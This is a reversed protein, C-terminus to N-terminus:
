TSDSSALVRYLFWAQGEPTKRDLYIEYIKGDDCEARFYNRHHRQRWNARTVGSAFGWDQWEAIIRKIKRPQGRWVFEVPSRDDERLTVQIQESIFM